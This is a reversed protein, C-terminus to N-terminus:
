TVLLEMSCLGQSAMLVSLQDLFKGDKVSVSPENDQECSGGWRDGDQSLRIWDVNQLSVEMIGM